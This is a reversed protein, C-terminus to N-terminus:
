PSLPEAGLRALESAAAVVDPRNILLDSPMSSPYLSPELAAGPQALAATVESANQGTLTILRGVIRVRESELAALRSRSASAAAEARVRDFGPAIGADERSKALAALRMAAAVDDQLAATRSELVRWDVVSGAIEALLAIRVANASASASDIRAIAAREQAKM